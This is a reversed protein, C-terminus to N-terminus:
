SLQSLLVDTGWHKPELGAVQLMTLWRAQETEWNLRPAYEDPVHGLFIRPAIEELDIPGTYGTEERLERVAALEPSELGEVKGGFGSWQGPEDVAWSREGMLLRGTTRAVPFLGVGPKAAEHGEIIHQPVSFMSAVREVQEQTYPWPNALVWQDRPEGRKRARDLEPFAYRARRLDTGHYEVQAGPRADPNRWLTVTQPMWQGDAFLSDSFLEPQDPDDPPYDDGTAQMEDWTWLEDRIPRVADIQVVRDLGFPTMYRQQGVVRMWVVAPFSRAEALMQLAALLEAPELDLLVGLLANDHEETLAAVAGETWETPPAGESVYYDSVDLQGQLLEESLEEDGAVVADHLGDVEDFLWSPDSDAKMIADRDPLPELGTVDLHLIVGLTGDIMARQVAYTAAAEVTDATHVGLHQERSTAQGQIIFPDRERDYAYPDLPNATMAVPRLDVIERTGGPQDGQVWVTVIADYGDALLARSLDAGGLGYARHLRAKWGNPGYVPEMPDDTTTMALVLPSQFSIEGYEWGPTPHEAARSTDSLLYFGAPEVDQGYQAGLYPASETSHMYPFTVPEGTAFRVGLEDVEVLGLDDDTM